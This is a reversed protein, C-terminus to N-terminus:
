QQKPKETRTEELVSKVIKVVDEIAWNTKLLYSEPHTTSVDGELSENYVTLNSLIIVPVRAGYSGSKRLKKLMTLGDMIPMIIDLLIIDPNEKLALALGDEGNRAQFVTFKEYMLIDLLAQRLP